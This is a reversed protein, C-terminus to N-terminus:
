LNSIQFFRMKSYWAHWKFNWLLISESMLDVVFLNFTLKKKPFLSMTRISQSKTIVALSAQFRTMLLQTTVVDLRDPDSTTLVVLPCKTQEVLKSTITPLLLIAKFDFWVTSKTITVYIVKVWFRAPTPQLKGSGIHENTAKMSPLFLIDCPSNDVDATSAMDSFTPSTMSLDWQKGYIFPVPIVLLLWALHTLQPTDMTGGSVIRVQDM